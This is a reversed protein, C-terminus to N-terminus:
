STLSGPVSQAIRRWLFNLADRKNPPPPHRIDSTHRMRNSLSNVLAGALSNGKYRVGTRETAFMRNKDDSRVEQQLVKRANWTDYVQVRVANLRMTQLRVREYDSTEPHTSGVVTEVEPPLEIIEDVPSITALLLFRRQLRARKLEALASRNLDGELRYRDVISKFSQGTRKSVYRYGSLNGRLRPNAALINRAIDYAHNSREYPKLARSGQPRVVFGVALGDKALADANYSSHRYTGDDPRIGSCASVALVCVILGLKSIKQNVIHWKQFAM